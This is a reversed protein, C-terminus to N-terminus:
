RETSATLETGARGGLLALTSRRVCETTRDRSLSDKSYRSLKYRRSLLCARAQRLRDAGPHLRDFPVRMAPNIGSGLHDRASCAPGHSSWAIHPERKARTESCM